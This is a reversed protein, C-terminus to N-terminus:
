HEQQKPLTIEVRAGRHGVADKLELTGDHETIIRLVIAMGLGTGKARTTYYPEFLRERNEQPFGPGNDEFSCHLATATKVLSVRILGHPTTGGESIANVSNQLINLFVQQIQQADCVWLLPTPPVEMSFTIHPFAQRQMFVVDQILQTVNTAQLVPAPMRAFTSFESILNEIHSVQRIITDICKIFTEPDSRVERGYKRKLREASLQIPTLPNKVEHAIKRAIDAWASKKESIILERNQQELREVMRNFSKVLKSLENTSSLEPIRTSLDGNSVREAAAILRMIPDILINALSLGMWVAGLLLLLSSLTFLLMIVAQFRKQGLFLKNYTAKTDRAKDVFKIINQDIDKSIWLDIEANQLPPSLQILAQVEGHDERIVIEGMSARQLIELLEKDDNMREQIFPLSIALSSGVSLAAPVLENMVSLFAEKLKYKEVLRDLEFQIDRRDKPDFLDHEGLFLQFDNAFERADVRINRLNERLYLEAVLNADNLATQVPRGFWISVGSRFFTIALIGMLLSPMLTVIAFTGLITAHLRAGIEGRRQERIVDRLRFTIVCALLLIVTVDLVVFPVILATREPLSVGGYSIAGYTLLGSIIAVSGLTVSFHRWSLLREIVRFLPNDDFAKSKTTM